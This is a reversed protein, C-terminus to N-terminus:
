KGPAALAPGLLSGLSATDVSGDRTDVSAVVSLGPRILGSLANDRPVSIRVPLRQVIKTFNGTANEPPLLSFQSGSAPAFSDVRGEIPRGPFADIELTVKQGPRMRRLQTEKFNAVVFVDPLPVLVMLQVGPRVLQGVQVSRNGVVGDVAARIVTDDRAIEATALAAEAQKLAAEAQRRDAEIMAIRDREAALAARSKATTADAKRADAETTELKQRSAFEGAALNRYRALDQRARNRDADSAAVGAQAQEVMSRQYALQKESVEIATRKAEVAARAEAVKAAYDEDDIVALIDGAKVPQNDAVKVERVYGQLKAAVNVIDAQVYANDTHEYFRGVTWWNWGYNAGVGLATVALGALLISRLIKKM